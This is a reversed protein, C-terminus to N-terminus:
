HLASSPPKASAAWGHALAALVLTVSALVGVVPTVDPAPAPKGYDAWLEDVTSVFRAMFLLYIAAEVAFAQWVFAQWRPTVSAPPHRLGIALLAAGLMMAANAAAHPPTVFGLAAHLALDACQWLFLAVCAATAAALPTACCCTCM